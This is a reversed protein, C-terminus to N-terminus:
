TYKVFQRPPRVERTLGVGEVIIVGNKSGKSGKETVFMEPQVFTKNGGKYTASKYCERTSAPGAWIIM